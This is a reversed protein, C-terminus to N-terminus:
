SLGSSSATAAVVRDNSYVADRRRWGCGGANGLGAICVVSGEALVRTLMASFSNVGFNAGKRPM